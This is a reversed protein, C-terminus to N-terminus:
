GNYHQLECISCGCCNSPLRRDARSFNGIAIFISKISVKGFVNKREYHGGKKLEAGLLKQNLYHRDM